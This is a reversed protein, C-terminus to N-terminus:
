CGGPPDSSECTIPADTLAVTCIMANQLADLLQEAEDLSQDIAHFFFISFEGSNDIPEILGLATATERKLGANTSVSCFTEFADLRTLLKAPLGLCLIRQSM